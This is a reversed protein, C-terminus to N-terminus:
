LVRRKEFYAWNIYLWAFLRLFVPALDLYNNLFAVNAFITSNDKEVM